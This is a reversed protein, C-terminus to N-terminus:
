CKTNLTLCDYGFISRRTKIIPPDWDSRFCIDDTRILQTTTFTILTRLKLKSFAIGRLSLRAMVNNLCITWFNDIKVYVNMSFRVHCFSLSIDSTDSNLRQINPSALPSSMLRPRSSPFFYKNKKVFCINSYFYETDAM